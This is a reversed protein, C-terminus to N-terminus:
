VAPPHWTVGRLLQDAGLWAVNMMRTATKGADAEPHDALWDALSESAGVLGYAVVELDTAGVERGSARLAHDLMGAVVEVLRGRMTALEAAFPQSGRAQRYLVAWGDRHAGVFGFFARLGRWLREDAPLDPAAAGAIAEMMRTSERHLCAIFLEEKTGLYAYVMPKSIGADDAIEDMSAAHFGRRSFVKVAADLMQQERVARPLRKFTPTSSM